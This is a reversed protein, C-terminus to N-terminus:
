SIIVFMLFRYERFWWGFLLWIDRQSIWKAYFSHIQFSNILYLIYSYSIYFDSVPFNESKIQTMLTMWNWNWNWNWFLKLSKEFIQTSMAVFIFPTWINNEDRNRTIIVVYVSENMSHLGNKFRLYCINLNKLSVM